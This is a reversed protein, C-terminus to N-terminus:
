AGAQETPKFLYTGGARFFLWFGGLYLVAGLLYAFSWPQRPWLHIAGVALGVGGTLTFLGLLIGAWRHGKTCLYCLGCVVFARGLAIMNVEVTSVIFAFLVAGACVAWLGIKARERPATLLM